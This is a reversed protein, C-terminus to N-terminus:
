FLVTVISIERCVREICNSAVKGDKEYQGLVTPKIVELGSSEIDERTATPPKVQGLLEALERRLDTLYNVV